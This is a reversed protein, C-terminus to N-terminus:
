VCASVYLFLCDYGLWCFMFFTTFGVLGFNLVVSGFLKIWERAIISLSFYSSYIMCAQFAYGFNILKTDSIPWHLTGIKISTVRLGCAKLVVGVSSATVGKGLGSVVGGTVLVYKMEARKGQTDAKTHSHAQLRLRLTQTLSQSPFTQRVCFVGSAVLQHSSSPVALRLGTRNGYLLRPRPLSYTTKLYGIHRRITAMQKGLLAKLFRAHCIVKYWRKFIIYTLKM